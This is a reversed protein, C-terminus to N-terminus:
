QEDIWEQSLPAPVLPLSKPKPAVLRHIWWGAGLVATIGGCLLLLAVGFFLYLPDVLFCFMSFWIIIALASMILTIRRELSLALLMAITLSGGAICTLLEIM